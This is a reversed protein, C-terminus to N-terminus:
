VNYQGLLCSQLIWDLIEIVLQFISGCFYLLSAGAQPWTFTLCFCLVMDTEYGLWLLLGIPIYINCFLILALNIYHFVHSICTVFGRYIFTVFGIPAKPSPWNNSDRETKGYNLYSKIQIKYFLLCQSIRTLQESLSLFQMCAWQVAHLSMSSCSPKHLQMCAWTVAHLSIYSFALKHLHMSAKLQM